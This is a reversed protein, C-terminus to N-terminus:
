EATLDYGTGKATPYKTVRGRIPPEIAVWEQAGLLARGIARFRYAFTAVVFEDGLEVGRDDAERVHLRVGEGYSESTIREIAYVHLWAGVLDALGIGDSLQPVATAISQTKVLVPKLDKTPTMDNAM